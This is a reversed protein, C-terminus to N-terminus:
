DCLIAERKGVQQMLIALKSPSAKLMSLSEELQSVEVTQSTMLTMREFAPLDEEQFSLCM